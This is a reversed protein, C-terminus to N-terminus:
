CGLPNIYSYRWSQPLHSKYVKLDELSFDPQEWRMPQWWGKERTRLTEDVWSSDSVDDDDDDGDDDHLGELRGEWDKEGKPVKPISLDEIKFLTRLRLTIPSVDSRVGQVPFFPRTFELTPNKLISLIGFRFSEGSTSHQYSRYWTM